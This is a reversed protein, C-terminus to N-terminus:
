RRGRPGRGGRRQGSDGQAPGRRGDEQGVESQGEGAGDRARRPEGRRQPRAEELEDSSLVGDEDTDINELLANWREAAKADQAASVEHININGDENADLNELVGAVRENLM